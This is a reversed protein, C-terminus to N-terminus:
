VTTLYIHWCKQSLYDHTLIELKTHLSEETCSM